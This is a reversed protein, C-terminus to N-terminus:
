MDFKYTNRFFRLRARLWNNFAEQHKPIREEIAAFHKLMRRTLANLTGEIVRKKKPHTERKYNEIEKNYEVITNRIQYRQFRIKGDETEFTNYAEAVHSNSVNQNQERLFYRMAEDVQILVLPNLEGVGFHPIYVKKFEEKKKPPRKQKGDWVKQKKPAPEDDSSDTNPPSPKKGKKKQKKQPPKPQAKQKGKGSYKPPEEEEPEEEVETEEDEEYDIETGDDSSGPEPPSPPDDTIRIGKGPSVQQAGSTGQNTGISVRTRGSPQLHELRLRRLRELDMENSPVYNRLGGSMPPNPNSANPNQESNGALVYGQGAFADVLTRIAELETLTIISM